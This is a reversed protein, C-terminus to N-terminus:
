RVQEFRVLKGDRCTYAYREGGTEVTGTAGGGPAISSSGSGSSGGGDDLPRTSTQVGHPLCRVVASFPQVILIVGLGCAVLFAAGLGRGAQGRHRRARWALLMGFLAVLPLALIGLSFMALVTFVASLATLLALLAVGPAEARVLVWAGAVVALAALAVATVLVPGLRYVPEDLHLVMAGVAWSAAGVAAALLVWLVGRAVTM